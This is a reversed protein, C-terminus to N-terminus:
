ITNRRVTVPVRLVVSFRENYRQITGEEFLGGSGLLPVADDPSLDSAERRGTYAAIGFQRNGDSDQHAVFERTGVVYYPTVTGNEVAPIYMTVLDAEAINAGLFSADSPPDWASGGDGPAVYVTNENPRVTTESPDSLEEVTTQGSDVPCDCVREVVPTFERVLESFESDSFENFDQGFREVEPTSMLTLIGGTEDGYAEDADGDGYDLDNTDGNQSRNGNGNGNGGEDGDEAENETGSDAYVYEVITSTVEAKITAPGANQERQVTYEETEPEGRYGAARADAPPIGLPVANAEVSQTLCGALSLSLATAGGLRLLPRRGFTADARKGAGGSSGERDRGLPM